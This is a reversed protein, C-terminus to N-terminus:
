FAWQSLVTKLCSLYAGVVSINLLQFFLRNLSDSHCHKKIDVREMTKTLRSLLLFPPQGALEVNCTPERPFLLRFRQVKEM